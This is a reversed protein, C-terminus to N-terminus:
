GRGHTFSDYRPQKTDKATPRRQANPAWIIKAKFNEKGFVGDLVFTVYAFRQTWHLYLLRPPKPRSQTLRRNARMTLYAMMTTECRFCASRSEDRLRRPKPM